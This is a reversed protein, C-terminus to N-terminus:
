QELVESAGKMSLIGKRKVDMQHSIQIVGGAENKIAAKEKEVTTATLQLNKM